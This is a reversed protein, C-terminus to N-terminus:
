TKGVVTDEGAAHREESTYAAAALDGSVAYARTSRGVAAFAATSNQLGYSMTRTADIGFRGADKYADVGAGIFNFAWGSGELEKVRSRLQEATHKRSENEEGDTQIVIMPRVEHGRMRLDVVRRAVRDILEMAADILPTGASPVYNLRSLRPADAVPVSDCLPLFRNTTFKVCTFEAKLERLSDVYANFGGITDDRLREMSGSEDLLFGVVTMPQKPNEKPFLTM